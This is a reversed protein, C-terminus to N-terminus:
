LSSAYGDEVDTVNHEKLGKLFYEKAMRLADEVVFKQNKDAFQMPLFLASPRTQLARIIGDYAFRNRLRM